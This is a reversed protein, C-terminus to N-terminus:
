SPRLSASARSYAGLGAANVAAVRFRYLKTPLLAAVTHSRTTSHTNSVVIMWAGGNISRAIRYGTVAAGNPAAVGWAVKIRHSGARAVSISAPAGPKAFAKAVPSTGYSGTTTATFGAVRFRYWTGNTLGTATWAFTTAPMLKVTVWPGVGGTQRQARYGTVPEGNAAADSWAISIAGSAGTGTATVLAPASPPGFPTVTGSAPSSGGTGVGSTAAVRFRYPVGNTLGDVITMTSSTGTDAVATTWTGGDDTSQQITWGTVPLSGAAGASWLLGVSGNGASTAPADAPADPLTGAVVPGVTAANGIRGGNATIAWVRFWYAQGPTLATFAHSLTAADNTEADSGFSGGDTSVDLHYWGVATGGSDAPTDWGVTLTTGATRDAHVNLPASAQRCFCSLAFFSPGGIGASNIPRVRFAIGNDGAPGGAPIDYSLATTGTDAVMTRWTVGGDYSKEIRYGSPAEGGNDTPAQWTMSVSSGDEAPTLSVYSFPAYRGIVPWSVSASDTGVVIGALGTEGPADGWNQGIPTTDNGLQGHDNAGFCTVEAADVVVCTSRGGVAIGNPPNGGTLATAALGDGMEGPGDGLIDTSGTGFQGVDGTGWCKLTDPMADEHVTACAHAAVAVSLVSIGTGLDVPTLAATEGAGDGLTATSGNGNVGTGGDGWCFLQTTVPAWTHATIACTNAPGASVGIVNNDPLSVRNMTGLEGGANGVPETVGLGLQGEAARGWCHLRYEDDVACTHATGAAIEMAGRGALDVPSLADGMEDPGDGIDTATGVGAQGYENAGWCKVTHDDLLACTHDGGASIALATRGSGLDVAPLLNGLESPGDGRNETDGYGLQGRNNAGWCKVAHDGLIVCTHARGSTIARATLGDGINVATAAAGFGVGQGVAGNDGRGLQGLLNEGWCKVGALTIACGFDAGLSISASWGRGGGTAAGDAAHALVPVPAASPVLLLISLLLAPLRSM